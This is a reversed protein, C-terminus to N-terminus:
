RRRVARAYIWRDWGGGVGGGSKRRRTLVLSPTAPDLQTDHFPSVDDLTPALLLKCRSDDWIVRQPPLLWRRSISLSILSAILVIGNLYFGLLTLGGHFYTVELINHIISLCHITTSTKDWLEGIYVLCDYYNRRRYYPRTCMACQPRGWREVCGKHASMAPCDCLKWLEGEDDFCIYCRM